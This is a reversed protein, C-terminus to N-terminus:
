PKIRTEANSVAIKAAIIKEEVAELAVRAAWIAQGAKWLDYPSPYPAAPPLEDPSAASVEPFNQGTNIEAIRGGNISFCAAIDSQRDGRLLMGKILSAMRADLNSM